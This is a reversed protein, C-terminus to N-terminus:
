NFETVDASTRRCIMLKGYYPVIDLVEGSIEKTYVNEGVRKEVKGDYLLYVTDTGELATTLEAKASEVGQKEEETVSMCKLQQDIDKEYNENNM